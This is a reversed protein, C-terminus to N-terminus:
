LAILFLTISKSGNRVCFHWWFARRWRRCSWGKTLNLESSFISNFKDAEKWWPSPNNVQLGIIHSETEKLLQLLAPIRKKTHLHENSNLDFLVNMTCVKLDASNIHVSQTALPAEIWQDANPDYHFPVVKSFLAAKAPKNARPRICGSRKDGRTQKRMQHSHSHGYFLNHWSNTELLCLKCQRWFIYGLTAPLIKGPISTVNIHRCLIKWSVRTWLHLLVFSLDCFYSIIFFGLHCLRMLFQLKLLNGGLIGKINKRTDSISNRWRSGFHCRTQLLTHWRHCRRKACRGEEIIAKSKVAM